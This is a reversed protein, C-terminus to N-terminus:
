QNNKVKTLKRRRIEVTVLVFNGLSAGLAAFVLYSFNHTYQFVGAGAGMQLIFTLATTSSRNLKGLEIIFCSSLIDITFFGFFVLIAMWLDVGRLFNMIVILIDVYPFM